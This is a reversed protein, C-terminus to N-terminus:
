WSPFALESIIHLGFSIPQYNRPKFEDGSKFAPVVKATKLKAPFSGSSVSVNFIQALPQSIIHSSLKWFVPQAHISDIPKTIQCSKSKLKSKQLPLLTLSFSSQIPPHLFTSFDHDPSSSPNFSAM